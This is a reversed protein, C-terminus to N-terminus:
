INIFLEESRDEKGIVEKEIKCNDPLIFIIVQDNDKILKQLRLKLEYIQPKTLEGYFVSRQKWYLYQKVLKYYKLVRNKDVDYFLIVKM